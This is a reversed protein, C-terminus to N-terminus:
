CLSRSCSRNEGLRLIHLSTLGDFDGAKLTTIQENRLSLVSIRSLRQSDVAACDNFIKDRVQPTRDCINVTQAQSSLPLMAFAALMFALLTKM